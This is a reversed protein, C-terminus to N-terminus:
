GGGVILAVAILASVVGATQWANLREGLLARALLITSAPYLSCLTVVPSLPGIQAALLYLANALMDIAGGGAALAALRPPMRLSRRGVAAIAVFLTVSTLRSALLPWLGSEKLTQALALLFLGGAIGSILAVGLGSRRAEVRTATQRSVLLISAIGLLIGAVALGGPREGLAISTVVPIAVAAVATTPAVVSMTGTALAHYLLGVGVGGMLGAAAGWWLDAARPAASPILLLILAVFVLGSTQSLVVVPIAATRRTVIGGTFDAAGYFVASGLALLYATM